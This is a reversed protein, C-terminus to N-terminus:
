ACQEEAVASRRTNRHAEPGLTKSGFHRGALVHTEQLIRGIMQSLGAEKRCILSWLIAALERGSMCERSQHFLQSIEWPARGAWKKAPQGLRLNLATECRDWLRASRMTEEAALRYLTSPWLAVDAQGLDAPLFRHVEDRTFAIMMVWRLATTALETHPSTRQTEEQAQQTKPARLSM